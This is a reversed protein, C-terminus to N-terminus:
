PKVFKLTFRDSNGTVSKRGVEFRLEDDPKRHLDSFDAFEFGADLAEKIIVVPDIRRYNESNIPEMHRRTHDVVGYIGGSKLADFAAKNVIARAEATFNHLNRFTLVMDADDVGFSFPKLDFIAPVDTRVFETDVELVNVKDMGKASLDVRTAGVALHLEGEDRLAPGLLKSYWGGGPMLEIVKMDSELGLFEMTQAPKRNRDRDKEAQSRIDSQQAEQIAKGAETQAEFRFQANASVAFLAIILTFVGRM